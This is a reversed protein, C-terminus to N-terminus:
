AHVFEDNYAAFAGVLVSGALVFLLLGSSGRMRAM